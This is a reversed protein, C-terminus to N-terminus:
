VRVELLANTHICFFSHECMTTLTKNGKIDGEKEREKRREKEGEGERRKWKFGNRVSMSKDNLRPELMKGLSHRTREQTKYVILMLSRQAPVHQGAKGERGAESKGGKM